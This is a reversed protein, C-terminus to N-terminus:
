PVQLNMVANELARGGTEKNNNNFTVIKSFLAISPWRVKMDMGSYLEGRELVSKM